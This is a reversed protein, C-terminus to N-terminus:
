HRATRASRVRAAVVTAVVVAALTAVCAIAPWWRDDLVVLLVALAISAIASGIAVLVAIAAGLGPGLSPAASGRYAFGAHGFWLTVIWTVALAALLM